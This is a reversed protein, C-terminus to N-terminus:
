VQTAHKVKLQGPSPNPSPNRLYDSTNDGYNMACSGMSISSSRYMINNLTFYAPDDPSLTTGSITRIAEKHPVDPNKKTDGKKRKRVCFIILIIVIILLIVGCIVGVVIGAIAGGSLTYAAAS